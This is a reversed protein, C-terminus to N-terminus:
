NLIKGFIKGTGINPMLVMKTNPSIGMKNFRDQM